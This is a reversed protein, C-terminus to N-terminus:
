GLISLIDKLVYYEPNLVEGIGFYLCVPAVIAALIGVIIPVIAYIDYEYSKSLKKAWKSCLPMLVIAVIGILLDMIGNIIQQKVLLPYAHEAAVGLKEAIQDIYEFAKGTAQENTM